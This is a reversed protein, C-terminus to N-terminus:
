AVTFGAPDRMFLMTSKRILFAALFLWTLNKGVRAAFDKLTVLNITVNKM